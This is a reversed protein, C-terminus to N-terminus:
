ICCCYDRCYLMWVDLFGGGFFAMPFLEDFGDMSRTGM